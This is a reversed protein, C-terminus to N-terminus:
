LIVEKTLKHSKLTSKHKSITMTM